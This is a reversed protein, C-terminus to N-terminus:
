SEKGFSPVAEDSLDESSESSEGSESASSAPAAAAAALGTPAEASESHTRHLADARLAGDRLLDMLADLVLNAQSQAPQYSPERHWRHLELLPAEDAGLLKAAERLIQEHSVVAQGTELEVLGALPPLM